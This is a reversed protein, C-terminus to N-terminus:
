NMRLAHMTSEYRQKAGAMRAGYTGNAEAMRSQYRASAASVARSRSRAVGALRAEFAASPADRKLAEFQRLYAVDAKETAALYQSDAQSASRRFAEDAQAAVRRFEEDARSAARRLEEDSLAASRRFAHDSQSANRRAQEDARSAARRHEEDSLAANRRVEEDSQSANRRAQEDARSADEETARATEASETPIRAVAPSVPHGAERTIRKPADEVALPAMRPVAPTPTLPRSVAEAAVCAAAMCLLAALPALRATAGPAARADIIGDIRKDLTRAADAVGLAPAYRAGPSPVVHEIATLLADAYDAPTECARSAEVDCAIERTVDLTAGMWRIAPNWWFLAELIKQLTHIAPDNRRIHAAEHLIVARMADAPLSAALREPVLIKPRVVGVVAPGFSACLRIEVDSRVLHRYADELTRSRKSAAVIRRLHAHGRAQRAMRWAAGLGWVAILLMAVPEGLRLHGPVWSTGVAPDAGIRDSEDGSVRMPVVDARLPVNGADVGIGDPRPLLPGFVSLVLAALLIGSKTGPPIAKTRCLALMVLVIIGSALLHELAYGLLPFALGSMM